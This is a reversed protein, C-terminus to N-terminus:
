FKIEIHLLPQVTHHWGIIVILNRFTMLELQVHSLFIVLSDLIRSNEVILFSNRRANTQLDQCQSMFSESSLGEWDVDSDSIVYWMLCVAKFTMLITCMIFIFRWTTANMGLHRSLQIILKHVYFGNDLSKYHCNFAKYHGNQIDISNDCCYFVNFLLLSILVYARKKM